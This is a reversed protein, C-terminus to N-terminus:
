LAATIVAGASDFLAVSRGSFPTTDLWLYRFARSTFVWEEGDRVFRDFAVCHNRYYNDGPGMASEHCVCTAVASDGDIEIPGQLAFQVFFERGSRLKRLTDVIANKGTVNVQPPDGITWHSDDAWVKGFADYDGRIAADAFRATTRRIAAEDLMTAIANQNDSM